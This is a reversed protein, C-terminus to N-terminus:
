RVAEMLNSAKIQVPSDKEGLDFRVVILLTFTRIEVLRIRINQAYTKRQSIEPSARRSAGIVEIGRHSREWRKDSIPGSICKWTGCLTGDHCSREM